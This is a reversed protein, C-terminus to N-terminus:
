KGLLMKALDRSEGDTYNILKILRERTDEIRDEVVEKLMSMFYQYNIPSVDFKEIDVHPAAQRQLLKSIMETNRENEKSYASSIDVLNYGLAETKKSKNM